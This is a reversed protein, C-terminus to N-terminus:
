HRDIYTRHWLEFNLLFWLETDYVEKGERHLRCLQEIYSANFFGRKRTREDMLTDFVFDKLAGRFWPDTPVAFGHKPKSLVEPPVLDKIARKLILKTSTGRIKYKAPIQFALEVLRHDLFPLRGELSWAMTAKDVKEMYTDALWTKLDVYMICNLQDLSNNSGCKRNYYHPYQWTPDYDAIADFIGAQLLQKQRERSFVLLWAAAREAPNHIPLTRFIKKTRRLRPVRGVIGPVVNETVFKPLKQYYPSVQDAVFRRYGGFLEDVGEGALVVKVHKRAFESILYVPFNAADGFPEDYQYVLKQLTDVMDLDDVQLEYHETGLYQAVRKADSLENYAGGISFGLSFTKVPGTAHRKMLAVIASSDVGGSLFAGVPVDAIMRRKVSDDLLALIREAYEQESLHENAAVVPEDGVDWYQKTEVQGNQAVLYHGPLLKFIDQYMTDPALAHGFALYNALGRPNVVRPVLPDAVISKIESSFILAKNGQYYYLPKEGIRDRAIFLLKKRDDWVAFAFMGNFRKLCDFGWEEYAHLVVETDSKTRFSYGRKELEPRLDLFNYLEGNYVICRTKDENFMPQHGGALDIISLRCNGLFVGNGQWKGQEDPGRHIIKYLQEDVNEFHRTNSSLIGFIGCM